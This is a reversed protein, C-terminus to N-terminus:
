TTIYTIIRFIFSVIFWSLWIGALAIAAYKIWKLWKKFKWEDGAATLMIIGHYILYLLAIFSLLWLARNIINKIIGMTKYVADDHTTIAEDKENSLIWELKTTEDKPNVIQSAWDRIPDSITWNNYNTDVAQNIDTNLITTTRWLQFNGLTNSLLFFGLVILFWSITHTIKNRM